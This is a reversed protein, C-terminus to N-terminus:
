IIKITLINRNKESIEIGLKDIDEKGYVICEGTDNGFGIEVLLCVIIKSCNKVGNINYSASFYLRNDSKRVDLAFCSPYVVSSIYEEITNDDM